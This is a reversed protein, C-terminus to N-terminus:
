KAFLKGNVLSQVYGIFERESLHEGAFFDYLDAVGLNLMLDLAKCFIVKVKLANQAPAKATIDNLKITIEKIMATHLEKRGQATKGMENYMM